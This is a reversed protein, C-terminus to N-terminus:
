IWFHLENILKEYFINDNHRKPFNSTNIGPPHPKLMLCQKKARNSRLYIAHISCSFLKLSSKVSYTPVKMMYSKRSVNSLYKEPTDVISM